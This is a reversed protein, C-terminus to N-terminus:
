GIMMVCYMDKSMENRSKLRIDSKGCMCKTTQRESIVIVIIIIILNIVTIIVSIVVVVVFL